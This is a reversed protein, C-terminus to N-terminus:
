PRFMGLAAPESSGRLAPIPRAKPQRARLIAEALVPLAAGWFLLLATIVRGGSTVLQSHFPYPTNWYTWVLGLLSTATLAASYLAISRGSETGLAALMVVILTVPLLLWARPSFAQVALFGLADPIRHARAAILDLRLSPSKVGHYWTWVLWPTVGISAILAALVLSAAKRRSWAWVAAVLFLAGIYLEGELKTALAAAAFVIAANRATTDGDDLWLYIGIASLSFFIGLPVDAYASSTGSWVEPATVLIASSAWLLQEPVRRRLLAVLALVFGALLLGFQLHIVQTDFGGMFRFDIAEITPIFLPYTPNPTTPAGFYHPNLGHFLVISEAKPTWFAWADWSGLPEFALMVLLLGLVFAVVVALLRASSPVVMRKPPRPLQRRAFGAAWVLASLGLTEPITLALGLVLLFQGLVGVSAIGLLYALGVGTLDRRGHRRGIARLVGTGALWYCVNPVLLLAVDRVM